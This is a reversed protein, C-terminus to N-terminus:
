SVASPDLELICANIQTKLLLMPGRVINFVKQLDVADYQHMLLNRFAIISRVDDIRAREGPFHQEMQALAEGIIMFKREVAAQLMKDTEYEGFSKNRM